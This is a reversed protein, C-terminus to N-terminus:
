IPLKEPCPKLIVWHNMIVQMGSGDQDTENLPEGVGRDDDALLRRHILFEVSGNEISGGAQSRDNM